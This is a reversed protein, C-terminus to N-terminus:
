TVRCSIGALQFKLGTCTWTCRRVAERGQQGQCAMGEGSEYDDGGWLDSVRQPTWAHMFQVTCLLLPSFFADPVSFNSQFLSSLTSAHVSMPGATCAVTDTFVCHIM